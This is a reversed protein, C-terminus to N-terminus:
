CSSGGRACNAVQLRFCVSPRVEQQVAGACDQSAHLGVPENSIFHCPRSLPLSLSLPPSLSLSLSLSLPLPLPLSLSLSLPLSLPLSPPLSPSLALNFGEWGWKLTKVVRLLGQLGRRACASCVGRWLERAPDESNPDAPNANGRVFETKRSNIENEGEGTLQFCSPHSVRAVGYRLTHLRAQTTHLRRPQFKFFAM